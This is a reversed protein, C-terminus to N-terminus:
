AADVRRAMEVIEEAVIEPAEWVLMHAAGEVVRVGAGIREGLIRAKRVSVLRDERGAVIRVPVGVEGLRGALDMRGAAQLDAMLVGAGVRGLRRVM